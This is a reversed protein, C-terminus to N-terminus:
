LEEVGLANAQAACALWDDEDCGWRLSNIARERSEAYDDPLAVFAAVIATASVPIDTPTVVTLKAVDRVWTGGLFGDGEGKIGVWGGNASTVTGTMMRPTEKTNKFTEWWQVRDGVKLTTM